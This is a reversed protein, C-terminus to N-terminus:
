VAVRSELLEKLTSADVEMQRGTLRAIVPDALKFLGGTGDTELTITVRTGSGEAQFVRCDTFQVPSKLSRSCVKKNPQYEKVEMSSEIRRGLFKSTTDFRSGPGTPGPTTRRTELRGSIYQDDNTLDSVFAFVEEVPRNIVISQELKM